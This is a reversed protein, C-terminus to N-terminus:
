IVSSIRFVKFINERYINVKNKIINIDSALYEIEKLGTDKGNTNDVIVLKIQSPKRAKNMLNEILRKLHSYSYFSVSLITINKQKM